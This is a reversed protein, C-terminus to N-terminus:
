EKWTEAQDVALHDHVVHSIHLSIRIRRAEEHPEEEERQVLVMLQQRFPNESQDNKNNRGAEVSSKDIAGDTM